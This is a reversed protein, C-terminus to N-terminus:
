HATSQTRDLLHNAHHSWNKSLTELSVQARVEPACGPLGDRLAQRVLRRFARPTDAVYVGKGLAGQVIPGYGEVAHETAIVPRGSAIADATKMKAGAGFTVPVIVCEASSLFDFKEGDEVFGVIRTRSKNIGLFTQFRPDDRVAAGLTGALWIQEDQALFGLGDPFTSFFGEVNPLWDSAMLAVYRCAATRADGIFRLPSDQRDRSALDSVPALYVVSRETTREIEAAEIDSISLVLDATRAFEEELLRTAALMEESTATKMGLRFLPRRASWEINQSSYVLRIQHSSPLAERLPLWPWPHEVHIVDPALRCILSRLTDVVAKDRSAARAVHVDAFATDALAKAHLEPSELVIDLPGWEEPPYFTSLFLGVGDVHWGAMRMAAMMSAARVQGGHKPKALPFPTLLLCNPV